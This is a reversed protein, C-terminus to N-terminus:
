EIRSLYLHSLPFIMLCFTHCRNKLICSSKKKWLAQVVQVKKGVGTRFFRLAQYQHLQKSESTSAQPCQHRAAPIWLVQHLLEEFAWVSLLYTLTSFHKNSHATSDNLYPFEVAVNSFRPDHSISPIKATKSMSHKGPGEWM